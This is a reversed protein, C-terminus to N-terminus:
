KMDSEVFAELFDKMLYNAPNPFLRFFANMYFLHRPISAEQVGKRQATIIATAAESPKIVPMLKEFRIRVKKCLGTDVM